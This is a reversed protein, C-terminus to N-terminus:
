RGEESLLALVARRDRACLDRLNDLTRLPDGGAADLDDRLAAVQEASPREPPTVGLDILLAYLADALTPGRGSVGTTRTTADSFTWVGWTGTGEWHDWGNGMLLGRERCAVVAMRWLECTYYDPADM